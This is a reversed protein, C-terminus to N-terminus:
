PAPMDQSAASDPRSKVQAQGDGSATRAHRKSSETMVYVLVSGTWSFTFLGSMAIMPGVIRWGQPLSVNGEGLTTYAELVYLYTDHLSPILRLWWIPVVWILSELLHVLALLGITVSVLLSVRWGPASPPLAALGIAFRRSLTGLCWGHVSIMIVVIVLCFGIETLPNPNLFTSSVVGEVTKLVPSAGALPADETAM